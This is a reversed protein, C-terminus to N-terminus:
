DKALIKYRIIGCLHLRYLISVKLVGWAYVVGRWFGISSADKFYKTPCSLEGIKYKKFMLQALIQNDFIFNDSNLHYSINRLSDATFARYGTHYESLKQSMIINQILTLVRNVIYKLLPMGGKLAGKGLIRSALVVDYNGSTIMYVMSPILTPTYQYDPHLMIIIDANLFLAKTYCTKQNAGYGSNNDHKLIHKIGLKHALEITNDQSNDDTLIVDDVLNFPIESYTKELTKVANYAPMVVIIKKGDVM